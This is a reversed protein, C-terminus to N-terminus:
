EGMSVTSTIYGNIFAESDRVTVDERELARYLTLDEEFANLEGVQATDSLKITMHQRDWYIIGEKLDGIIFPIKNETTPLDSKPYVVLPVTTAGAQLTYSMTDNPMPSLLDRGTTDKLHDLYDLGDENTYVKSTPKFTMGLTTNLATKIGDLNKLDTADKTKIQEMILNNATVRSDDGIWEVLVQGLNNDSDALVENTVPYYGGYKDIKYTLREFQPTDKAAVKGGEGVKKFGTQQSRKKYTREGENTSVNVVTVENLFTAKSTRYENIKTFVDKPVTYGGEAPTTENLNKNVRFGKKADAGFKEIGTKKSDKDPNKAHDIVPDTASNASNAKELDFARKKLDFEKQLEDVEDMLATAKTLDKNEGDLFGKAEATKSQIKVLLERLEKNM